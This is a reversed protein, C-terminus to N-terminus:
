AGAGGRERIAAMLARHAEEQEPSVTEGPVDRWQEPRRTRLWLQLATTDPPVHKNTRTIKQGTKESEEERKETYDYGLARRLLAEEVQADVAERGRRLAERIDPHKKKWLSLTEASVGCKEAIAEHTLGDRAWLRLLELGEPELWQLYKQNSM